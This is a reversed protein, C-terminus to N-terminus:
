RKREEPSLSLANKRKLPKKKVDCNKGEWGFFCESCDPGFFNGNCTCLKCTLILLHFFFISTLIDNIIKTQPSPPSCPYLAFENQWFGKPPSFTVLSTQSSLLFHHLIFFSLICPHKQPKM